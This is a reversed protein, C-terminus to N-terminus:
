KLCFIVFDMVQKVSVFIEFFMGQRAARGWQARILSYEWKVKM